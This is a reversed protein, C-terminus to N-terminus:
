QSPQTMNNNNSIKSSEKVIPGFKKKKNLFQNVKICISPSVLTNFLRGDPGGPMGGSMGGPMGGPMGPMMPPMSYPPPPPLTGPLPLPLMGGIPMPIPPINLDPLRPM